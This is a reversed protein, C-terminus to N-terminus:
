SVRLEKERSVMSGLHKGFLTCEKRELGKSGAPSQGALTMEIICQSGSGRLWSSLGPLVELVLAWEQGQLGQGDALEGLAWSCGEEDQGREPPECM